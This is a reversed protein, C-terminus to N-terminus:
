VKIRCHFEGDGGGPTDDNIRLKLKLPRLYIFHEKGRGKSGIFFYNNLRGLLCYPHANVPDMGGHLLFKVDYEIRDIWGDPGNRGITGVVGAYISGSIDSFEYADGYELTIGMDVDGDSEKAIIMKDIQPPLQTNAMKHIKKDVGKYELIPVPTQSKEPATDTFLDADKTTDITNTNQINIVQFEIEKQGVSQIVEKPIIAKPLGESINGPITPFYQTTIPNGSDARRKAYLWALSLGVMYDLASPRYPVSNKEGTHVYETLYNINPDPDKYVPLDDGHNSHLETYRQKLLIVFIKEEEIGAGLLLALASAFCCKPM